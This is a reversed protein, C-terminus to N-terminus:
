SWPATCHKICAKRLYPRPHSPAPTTTSTPKKKRQKPRPASIHRRYIPQDVTFPCVRVNWVRQRIHEVKERLSFISSQCLLPSNPERLFIGFPSDLDTGKGMEEGLKRSSLPTEDHYLEESGLTWRGRGLACMVCRRLAADGVIECHQFLNSSCIRFRTNLEQLM